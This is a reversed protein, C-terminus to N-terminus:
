IQFQRRCVRETQFLRFNTMQYHTLGKGVLGCSKVVCHYFGKSLMAPFWCKRRKGCDFVFEMIQALDIDDDAVHKGKQCTFM